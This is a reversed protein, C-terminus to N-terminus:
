VGHLRTRWRTILPDLLCRKLSSRPENVEHLFFSLDVWPSLSLALPSSSVRPFSLLLLVRPIIFARPSGLSFSLPLPLFAHAGPFYKMRPAPFSSSSAPPRLSASPALLCSYFLSILLNFFSSCSLSSYYYYYHCHHPYVHYYYLFIISFVSFFAFLLVIISFCPFSSLLFYLHPHLRPHHLLSRFPYIHLIPALFFSFSFVLLPRARASSTLYLSSLLQYLPRLTPSPNLQLLLMTATIKSPSPTPSPSLPRSTPRAVARTVYSSDAVPTAVDVIHALCFSRRAIKEGTRSRPRTIRQVCCGAVGTVYDFLPSGVRVVRANREALRRGGRHREM